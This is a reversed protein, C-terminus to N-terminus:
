VAQKSPPASRHMRNLTKPNICPLHHTSGGVGMRCGRGRGYNDSLLPSYLRLKQDVCRTARPRIHRPHPQPAADRRPVRRRAARCPAAAAPRRVQPPRRRGRPQAGVAAGHQLLLAAPRLGGGGGRRGALRQARAAAMRVLRLGGASLSPPTTLQVHPARPPPEATCPHCYGSLAFLM